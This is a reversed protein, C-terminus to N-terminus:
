RLFPSLGKSNGWAKKPEALTWFINQHLFLVLILTKEWYEPTISVPSLPQFVLNTPSCMGSMICFVFFEGLSFNWELGVRFNFKNANMVSSFIINKKRCDIIRSTGIFGALKFHSVWNGWCLVAVQFFSYALCNNM